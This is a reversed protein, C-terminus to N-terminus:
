FSSILNNIYYEFLHRIHIALVGIDDNAKRKTAQLSAIVRKDEGEQRMLCM